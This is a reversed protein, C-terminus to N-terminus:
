RGSLFLQGVFCLDLFGVLDYLCIENKRVKIPVYEGNIYYKQDFFISMLEENTNIKSLSVNVINRKTYNALAKILSTKGTGPPGHLLLGLKHPYGNVAYKGRKNIFNNLIKLITSKHQFFLSDFTKENSLKYRKYTFSKDNDGDGGKNKQLEYLYRSNDELKRLEDIYWTYAKNLFDDISTEGLSRLHYTKTERQKANDKGGVTDENKRVILQVMKLQTKDTDPIGFYGLDLWKNELPKKVMKYQSLRGVITTDGSGSDEEDSDYNNNNNGKPESTSTLDLNAHDLKLNCKSNIYLEIAKILVANQTDGDLSVSGGSSSWPDTDVVSKSILFREKYGLQKAYWIKWGNTDSITNAFKEINNFILRLLIPICMAIILDM